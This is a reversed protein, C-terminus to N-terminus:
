LDDLSRGIGDLNPTVKSRHRIFETKLGGKRMASSMWRLMRMKVVGM